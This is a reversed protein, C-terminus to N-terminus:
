LSITQFTYARGGIKLEKLGEELKKSVTGFPSTIILDGNSKYKEAKKM